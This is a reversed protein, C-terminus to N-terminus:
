KSTILVPQFLKKKIRARGIFQNGNVRDFNTPYIMIDEDRTDFLLEKTTTGDNDIKSVIVQGGAGDIHYKPTEDEALNMNHINDLYLFYYGTADSILKFSMTGVGASGRQKKPIKRMWMFKGAGDIKAAYIDEYYYTYTTRISGNFNSTSIVLKYEECSLFISGDKEVVVNRVRLNPIEFDDKNEIKRRTRSSEFKQLESAPFEYYGERYKALTGEQSLSALFIGDTGNGKAQKSYTCAVIMEHLSNEIINADRIYNDGLNIKASIIKKSEKTFKLVEYHYAPKGTEKDREKRSDSDYVKALMYANGKSDVSFDSNDMIAETYPMTFEGGWLKKMNNDFVQLGIKDFNKKDSKQEPYLRYSVLLKSREVDYNFKYKGVVKASYFGNPALTGAIRTTQFLNHNADTIKGAAVDIKDYYLIETENSKDWDSHLWYYNNDDFIAVMESNFNKTAEPLEIRQEATKQLSQADFRTIYLEDDKLSLNVIGDKQNGFFALDETKRPLEYEDGLKFTFKTSQKQAYTVVSLLCVPLMALYKM